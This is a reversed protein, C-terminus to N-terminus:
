FGLPNNLPGPPAGPRLRYVRSANAVGSDGGDAPPRLEAALRGSRGTADVVLEAALVTGDVVVGTIRHGARLVRDAHGHWMALNPQARAVRWLAREFTERRARLITAVAPAGDPRHPEVGAALVAALIDPLRERLLNRTMARFVHPHHFQMVGKRRWPKGGAPGGDRDVVVVEHGARALAIAGVLGAPGAGVVAVRM